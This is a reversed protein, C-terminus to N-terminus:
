LNPINASGPFGGYPLTLGAPAYSSAAEGPDFRLRCSKVRKGCQDARWLDARPPKTAAGTASDALLYFFAPVSGDLLIYIVDGAFYTATASWLSDARVNQITQDFRNDKLDALCKTGAWGCDDGRYKFSCSNAVVQRRPLMTGDIDLSSGLEFEVTWRTESAKRDIYYVDVLCEAYPDAETASDLFHALTRRRIIKAGVLDDYFQTLGSMFGTINAFTIKPRPLEGKSRLEFGQVQVPLPVYTISQFKVPQNSADTGAYFYLTEGGINTADLTFLEVLPKATLATLADLLKRRSDLVSM